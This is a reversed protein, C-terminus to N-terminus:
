RFALVPNYNICGQTGILLVNSFKGCRIIVYPGGDSLFCWRIDHSTLAVMREGWQLSNKTDMFPGKKPLHLMFWCYLMPVCINVIGKKAHRSHIAYYTDALLTPVLNKTMFVCISALDVFEKKNPFLILGYIMVALQGNFAVWNKKDTNDQAKRKLFALDFGYVDENLKWNDKVEKLSLYLAGVIFSEKVKEPTSVFSM